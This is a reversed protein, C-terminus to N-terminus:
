VPKQKRRTEIEDLSYVRGTGAGPCVECTERWAKKTKVNSTWFPWTRCQTPRAEYVTCRRTDPDLFICDGDPYEVLSKRRGARRVFKREFAAVDMEFHEALRAIEDATVFVFGPEGSCCAGCQTCHFSLGDRYWPTAPSPRNAEGSVSQRTM